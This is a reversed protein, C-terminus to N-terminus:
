KGRRLWRRWGHPKNPLPEEVATPTPVIATEGVGAVARVLVGAETKELMVRSGIGMEERLEPPIQLRGAADVVVYEEYEHQIEEVELGAKLAAEVDAVRRITESSTRGDRITVVRDVARAVAPDHTVIITTLGYTENM